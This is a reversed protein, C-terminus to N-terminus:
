KKNRLTNTDIQWAWFSGSVPSVGADVKCPLIGKKRISRLKDITVLHVFIFGTNEHNKTVRTETKRIFKVGLANYHDAFLDWLGYDIAYVCDSELSGTIIPRCQLFMNSPCLALRIAIFIFYYIRDCAVLIEAETFKPFLVEFM